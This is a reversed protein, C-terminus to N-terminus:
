EMGGLLIRNLVNLFTDTGVTFELKKVTPPQMVGAMAEYAPSGVPFSCLVCQEEDLKTYGDAVAIASQEDLCLEVIRKSQQEQVFFVPALALAKMIGPYKNIEM